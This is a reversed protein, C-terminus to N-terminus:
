PSCLGLHLFVFWLSILISDKKKKKREKKREEKKWFVTERVTRATRSSVKYVLSDKFKCLNKEAEAEAEWTSTYVVV